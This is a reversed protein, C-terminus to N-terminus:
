LECHQLRWAGDDITRTLSLVPLEGFRDRVALPPEVTAELVTLELFSKEPVM